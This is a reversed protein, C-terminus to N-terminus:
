LFDRDCKIKTSWREKEAQGDRDWELETEAAGFYVM